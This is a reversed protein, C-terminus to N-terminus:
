KKSIQPEKTIRLYFNTSKNVGMENLDNLFTSM